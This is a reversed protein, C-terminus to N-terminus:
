SNQIEETSEAETEEILQLFLRMEALTIPYQTEVYHGFYDREEDILSSFLAWDGIDKDPDFDKMRKEYRHDEIVLRQTYYDNEVQREFIYDATDYLYDEILKFGLKEIESIVNKRM